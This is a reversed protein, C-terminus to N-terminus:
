GSLGLGRVAIVNRMVESTGEVITSAVSARSLHELQGALPAWKSDKQLQGELELVEIGTQALRQELESGFLKSLAGEYTPTIGKSQMQVVRYSLMRAVELEIAMRAVKQRVLPNDCLRRSNRKTNAAYEILQELVHQLHGTAYVRESDLSEMILYFGRNKEGVMNKIPVRVNDYFVENTRFGSMTQLPSITIGPSSLDVIFMSIGKHKPVNPDTRVALWHYQSFHVCTNYLKQGNIVYDDGDEVARMELSALDSGAQPETFGPAFEIEGRAIKLLYARKQEETGHRLIVAGAQTVSPFRSEPMGGRRGLEEFIIFRYIPSAGLGGYEEPWNPALWGREGLKRMFQWVAPGRTMESQMEETVEETLNQELFTCVAQRFREEEETFSFKM